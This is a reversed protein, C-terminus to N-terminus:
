RFPQNAVVDEATLPKLIQLEVKLMQNAKALKTISLLDPYLLRKGKKNAFIDLAGGFESELRPHLHKKFSDKVQKMVLSKM